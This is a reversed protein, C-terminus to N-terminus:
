NNHKAGVNFGLSSIYDLQSTLGAWTGGCAARATTDCKYSHDKDTREFRDVQAHYIVRDRWADPLSAEVHSYLLTLLTTTALLQM